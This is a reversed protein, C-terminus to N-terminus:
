GPGRGPPSPSPQFGERARPNEPRTHDKEALIRSKAALVEPNGPRAALAATLAKEFDAKRATHALVRAHALLRYPNAPAPKGHILVHAERGLVERLLLSEADTGPALVAKGLAGRHTEELYRDAEALAKRADDGRNLHHLIIARAAAVNMTPTYEPRSQDLLELARPYNGARARTMAAFLLFENNKPNKGLDKEAMEALAKLDPAPLAEPAALCALYLRSKAEKNRFQKFFETCSARFRAPDTAFLCLLAHLKWPQAEQQALSAPHEQYVRDLLNAAEEWRGLQLLKEAIEVRATDLESRLPSDKPEKRLAAEMESTGASWERDAQDLQLARWHTAGLALHTWGVDLPYRVNTPEEQALALRAALAEKLTNEAEAFRGLDALIQGVAHQSAVLDARHRRDRKQNDASRTQAALAEKHALLKEQATEAKGHRSLAAAEEDAKTRAVLTQFDARGRLVDLDTDERMHSSTQSGIEISQRLADLSAAILKDRQRIDEATLGGQRQDIAAAALAWACAQNYLDGGTKRPQAAITRAALEFWDASEPKRGEASLFHAHGNSASYLRARFLPVEPNDKTLRRWHDIEKQEYQNAEDNRGLLQLMRTVNRYQTGLYQGYVIVQPARAFAAEGQEVARLYMALADQEHARENLMVGINNLTGGLNNRAEPDDPFERVLTERLALAKRHSELREAVRTPDRQNTAQSNYAEALDRRYRPNTSDLKILREYIEIAEPIADLHFQCAALGSQVELDNPNEKALADYLSRAAVFSKRSGVVDGLDRQIRGVRLQVGALAARLAPDDRRKKLFEDYFRLAASLLDRRLPQLGPAKLLADETVRTLFEDVAARAQAEGAEARIRQRGAEEANGKAQIESERATKLAGDKERLATALAQSTRAIRFNSVALVVVAALLAAIALISTAALAPNRRCWRWAQEAPSSRRALVPKDALFRRLDEALQEASAYRHAPEKAIAKLIITELDRPLKRDLKRPSVPADHMVREILKARNPEQFPYHLTFLEYLTIGLSYVDSRPDSWGDFREPAMYRLTGVIDGTHTLADTGEAKALGFDTVWVTGRADLLLNSPKIDRHLIGQSHAYALGDAVQSGLRAISRYYQTEAHSGSLTVHAASGSGSSVDSRSSAPAPGGSEAVTAALDAPSHSRSEQNNDVAQAGGAHFRGTLLGLATAQTLPRAADSEGPKRPQANEIRGSRLRRLEEFVEDLGQGQIFQMAYYHVGDQSGVGFVPVINTHHLRAAARAELQFRELHSSGALSQNPLVKLAVHRGLSQQVAEYVVGMGGRGIERLILYDGLVRPAAGAHDPASGQVNGTATGGPSQNLELEVLAPLIARIEDALEPYKSAYEDISPREGSRFRAIFSDALLEIPDRDESSPTASAGASM